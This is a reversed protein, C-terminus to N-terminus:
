GVPLSIKESREWVSVAPIAHVMEPTSYSISPKGEGAGLFYRVTNPAMHVAAVSVGIDVNNRFRYM